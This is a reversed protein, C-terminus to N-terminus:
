PHTYESDPKCICYYMEINGNDKVRFRDLCSVKRVTKIPDSAGDDNNDEKDVTIYESKLVVTIDSKDSSLIIDSIDVKMSTKSFEREDNRIEDITGEKSKPTLNNTLASNSALINLDADADKIDYHIYDNALYKDLLTLLADKNAQSPLSMFKEISSYYDRVQKEPSNHLKQSEQSKNDVADHGLDENLVGALKTNSKNGSKQENQYYFMLGVILVFAASIIVIRKM